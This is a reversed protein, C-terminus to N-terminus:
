DARRIFLGLQVIGMGDMFFSPLVNDEGLERSLREREEHLDPSIYGAEKAFGTFIAALIFGTREKILDTTLPPRQFPRESSEAM